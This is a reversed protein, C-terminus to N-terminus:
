RSPRHPRPHTAVVTFPLIHKAIAASFLFRGEVPGSLRVDKYPPKAERAQEPDTEIWYTRDSDPAGDLGKARVFYFSRPVITAGQRFAKQYPSAKAPELAGAETSLACRSRSLHDAGRGQHM